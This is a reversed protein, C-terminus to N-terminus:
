SQSKRRRRLAFAFAFLFAFAFPPSPPSSLPAMECGGTKPMPSPTPPVVCGQGGDVLVCSLGPDCGSDDTCAPVCVAQCRGSQCDSGATCDAGDIALVPAVAVACISDSGCSYGTPCPKSTSCSQTCIAASAGSPKKCQDNDCQVAITCASGLPLRCIGSLCKDGNACSGSPCLPPTASDVIFPETLTTRNAADDIAEVTLYFSEGNNATVTTQYPAQTLM